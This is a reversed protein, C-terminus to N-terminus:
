FTMFPTNYENTLNINFDFYMNKDIQKNDKNIQKDIQKDASGLDIERQLSNFKISVEVPLSSDSDISDTKLNLRNSNQKNIDKEKSHDMLSDSILTLKSNDLLSANTNLKDSVAQTNM